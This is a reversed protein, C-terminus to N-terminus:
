SSFNGNRQNIVARAEELQRIMSPEDYINM